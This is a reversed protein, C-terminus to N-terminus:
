LSVLQKICSKCSKREEAQKEILRVQVYLSQEARSTM